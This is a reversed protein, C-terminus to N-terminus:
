RETITSAPDSEIAAVNSPQSQVVPRPRLGLEVLATHAAHRVTLHRLGAVTVHHDAVVRVAAVTSVFLAAATITGRAIRLVRQARTVPAAGAPHSSAPARPARPV